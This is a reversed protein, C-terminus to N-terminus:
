RFYRRTRYYARGTLLGAVFALAVLATVGTAILATEATPGQAQASCAATLVTAAVANM